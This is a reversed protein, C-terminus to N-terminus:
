QGNETDPSPPNASRVSGETAIARMKRLNELRHGKAKQHNKLGDAADFERWCVPCRHPRLDHANASM